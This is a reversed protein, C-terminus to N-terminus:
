QCPQVIINGNGLDTIEEDKVKFNDLKVTMYRDFYQKLSKEISRDYEPRLTHTSGNVVKVIKGNQAVLEGDKFVYLPKEFMKERNKLDSYVTIDAAAGAGLHGRNKLGLSRAPAARTMIAIEYLTYERDLSGLISAAAAHKNITSLMDNRFSRDMLLRILHPYTTFPAGNPHDTTLFIRWPDNVQLFLELGIAWQLANVFNKDRYRFPVVGCGADCEIDMVVWKKPHAHWHGNYQLMTDGSATVTQGFMIQGVDMSINPNSNVAEAVQAAGSSFKRDGEAGYSHFQIHTLHMPMGEVARITDLTTQMNGPVGLNCGHVHLPHPIGLERVARALSKLIQRPTVNYFQNIEDLDLKRQNFKFANIGGPNVVKIAMAQTANITWGVYDTIAAQDKNSALMRLFFDDNGLLAYAGKDVIPTDAMEMHAQRANVPLMAPEFCATYGMEAYRYGTTLTSPAVHGCGARTISTSAVPDERHDEPLLMRAINVKGGGIHTHIDIAGAMIIKGTLDYIKDVREQAGPKRTIKGDRFYIDRQEGNIGHVPDYVTGGSLKILM